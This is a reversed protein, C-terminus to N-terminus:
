AAPGELLAPIPADALVTANHDGHAVLLERDHFRIVSLLMREGLRTSEVIDIARGASKSRALWGSKRQRIVVAIALAVLLGMGGLFWGDGLAGSEFAALPKFPISASSSAAAPAANEISTRTM